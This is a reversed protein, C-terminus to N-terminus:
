GIEEQTTAVAYVGVKPHLRRQQRLSRLAEAVVFVGAKKDFARAAACRGHLRQYGQQFTVADGIGVQSFAEDSSGAGIDIGLDHFVPKQALEDGTM